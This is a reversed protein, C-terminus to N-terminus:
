GSVRGGTRQFLDWSDDAFGKIHEVGGITPCRVLADEGLEVYNLYVLQDGTRLVEAYHELDAITVHIYASAIVPDLEKTYV